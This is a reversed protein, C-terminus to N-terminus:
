SYAGLQTKTTYMQMHQVLGVCKTSYETTAWHFLLEHISMGSWESM